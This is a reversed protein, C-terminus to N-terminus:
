IMYMRIEASSESVSAADRVRRGEEESVPPLPQNTPERLQRTSRVPEHRDNYGHIPTSSGSRASM